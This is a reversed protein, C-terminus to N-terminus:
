SLSKVEPKRTLSQTAGSEGARVAVPLLRLVLQGLEEVRYPKALVEVLGIARARTADEPRIYGTVLAIRADRRIRLVEQAFDIGSMGPMSYDTVVADYRDPAARFAQLAELASTFGEIRFGCHELFRRAVRVLTVEDDVFLLREGHGV